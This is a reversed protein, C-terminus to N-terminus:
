SGQRLRIVIRKLRTDELKRNESDAAAVAKTSPRGELLAQLTEDASFSGQAKGTLDHLARLVGAIKSEPLELVVDEGGPAPVRALVRVGDKSIGLRSGSTAADSVPAALKAADAKKSERRIAESGEDEDAGAPNGDGKPAEPKPEVDNARKPVDSGPKPLASESPPAATPAPATPTAPGVPRNATPSTGGPLATRKADNVGADAPRELEVSEGTVPQWLPVVSDVLTMSLTEGFGGGEFASANLSITVVQIDPMGALLERLRETEAEVTTNGTEIVADNGEDRMSRDWVNEAAKPATPEATADVSGRAGSKDDGGTRSSKFPVETMSNLRELGSGSGPGVEDPQRQAIRREEEMAANQLSLDILYTAVSVGIVLVAAVAAPYWKRDRMRIVRGAPTAGGGAHAAALEPERAPRQVGTELGLRDMVGRALGSPANEIPLTSVATSVEQLSGLYEQADEDSKIFARVEAEEEGTLEGDHYASILMKVREDMTERRAPAVGAM